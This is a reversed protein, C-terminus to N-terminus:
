DVFKIPAKGTYKTLYWSNFNIDGDAWAECKNQCHPCIISEVLSITQALSDIGFNKKCWPCCLEQYNESM